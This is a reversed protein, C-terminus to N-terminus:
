TIGVFIAYKSGGDVRYLIVLYLYASDEKDHYVSRNKVGTKMSSTPRQKSPTVRGYNCDATSRGRGLTRYNFSDKQVAVIPFRGFPVPSVLPLSQILLVIEPNGSAKM